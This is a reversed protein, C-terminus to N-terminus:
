SLLSLSSVVLPSPSQQSRSPSSVVLSKVKPHALAATTTMPRLSKGQEFVYEPLLAVICCATGEESGQKGQIAPAESM